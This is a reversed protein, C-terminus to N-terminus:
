REGTSCSRPVNDIGSGRPLKNTPRSTESDKDALKAARVQRSGSTAEPSGSVDAAIVFHRCQIDEANLRSEVKDRRRTRAYAISSM